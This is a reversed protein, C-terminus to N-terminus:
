RVLDSDEAGLCVPIGVLKLSLSLPYYAPKGDGGIEYYGVFRDRSEVHRYLGLYQVEKKIQPLFEIEGEHENCVVKRNHPMYAVTHPYHIESAQDLVTRVATNKFVRQM